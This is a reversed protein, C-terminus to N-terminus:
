MDEVSDEKTVSKNYLLTNYLDSTILSRYLRGGSVIYHEQEEKFCEYMSLDFSM